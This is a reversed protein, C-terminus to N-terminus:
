QHQPPNWPEEIMESYMGLDFFDIPDYMTSFLISEDTPEFFGDITNGHALNGSADTSRGQVVNAPASFGMNSGAQNSQSRHRMVHAHLLELTKSCARVTITQPLIQTLVTQCDTWAATWTDAGIADYLPACIGTLLIIMAAMRTYFMNYWWAGTAETGSCQRIKSILEIAIRVCVLASHFAFSEAVSSPAELVSPQFETVMSHNYCYRFFAPRYLQIRAHLFRVHLVNSQRRFIGTPELEGLSGTHAMSLHPPLCRSFELLEHDIQVLVDFHSDRGYADRNNPKNENPKYISSLIRGLIRCLKVSEAFFAVTSVKGAELDQVTIWDHEDAPEPLSRRSDSVLMAPRGLAMSVVIDMTVCGHWVRKRLEREADDLKQETSEVHLGLGQALRCAVGMSTWCKSPAVTSQFYQTLLLLTQVLSISGEDFLDLHLLKKSKEMCVFSLREREEMNLQTSFQMGLALAANLACHFVISSPGSDPGAGLGLGPRNRAAHPCHHKSPKWLDEYAETFVAQHLFPYLTHVRKWYLSMLHDALHRPLLTFNEPEIYPQAALHASAFVRPALSTSPLPSTPAAEKRLIDNYVQRTFSSASSSGYFKDRASPSGAQGVDGGMADVPSNESLLYSRASGRQDERTRCPSTATPVALSTFSATAVPARVDKLEQELQAVHGLLSEVYENTHAADAASVKYICRLSRTSCGKCAPKEGDCRAKRARCSECALAIKRRKSSPETSAPMQSTM